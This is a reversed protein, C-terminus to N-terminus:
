FPIVVQETETRQQIVFAYMRVPQKGKAPISEKVFKLEYVNLAYVCGVAFIGNLIDKLLDTDSLSSHAQKKFYDEIKTFWLLKGAKTEAAMYRAVELANKKVDTWEAVVDLPSFGTKQFLWDSLEIVAEMRPNAESGFKSLWNQPLIGMAKSMEAKTIGHKDAIESARNMIQEKKTM